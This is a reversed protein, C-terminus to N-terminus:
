PEGRGEGEGFSQRARLSGPLFAAGTVAWSGLSSLCAGPLTVHSCSGERGGGQAAVWGQGSLGSKGELPRQDGQWQVGGPQCGAM